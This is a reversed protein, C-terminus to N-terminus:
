LQCLKSSRTRNYISKKGNRALGILGLAGFTANDRASKWLVNTAGFLVDTTTTLGIEISWLGNIAFAAVEPSLRRRKQTRWHSYGSQKLMRLITSNSATIDSRRRIDHYTVFPDRKILTLIRRSDSPSLVPPRGSRPISNGDHRQTNKELTYQVTTPPLRVAGAIQRISRGALQQCVLLGRQYPSLETNRRRNPDIPTLPNKPVM